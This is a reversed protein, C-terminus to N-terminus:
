LTMIMHWHNLETWPAMPGQVTWTDRDTYLHYYLDKIVPCMLMQLQCVAYMNVSLRVRASPM